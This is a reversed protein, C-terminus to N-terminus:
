CTRRSGGRRPPLSVARSRSRSSRSAEGPSLRTTDASTAAHDTATGGVAKFAARREALADVLEPYGEIQRGVAGELEALADRWGDADLAVVADPRFTPLM